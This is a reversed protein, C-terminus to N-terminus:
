NWNILYSELKYEVLFMYQRRADIWSLWAGPSAVTLFPKEMIVENNKTTSGFFFLM